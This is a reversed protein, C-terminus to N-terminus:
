LAVFPHFSLEGLGFGFPGTELNGLGLRCTVAIEAGWRGESVFRVFKEPTERHGQKVHQWVDIARDVM